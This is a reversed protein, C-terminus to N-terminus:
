THYIYQLTIVTESIFIAALHVKIDYGLVNPEIRPRTQSYFGMCTHFIFLEMADYKLIKHNFLFFLLQSRKRIIFRVDMLCSKEESISFRLDRDLRWNFNSALDRCKDPRNM